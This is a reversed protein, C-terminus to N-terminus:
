LDGLNPKGRKKIKNKIVFKLFIGGQAEESAYM